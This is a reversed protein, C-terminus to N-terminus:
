PRASRVAELVHEERGERLLDALRRRDPVRGLRANLVAYLRNEGLGAHRAARVIRPVSSFPRWEDDFQWVPFYHEWAGEPRFAILEGARRMADIRAPEEGLRAALWSASLSDPAVRVSM